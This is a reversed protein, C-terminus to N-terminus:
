GVNIPGKIIKGTEPSVQAFWLGDNGCIARVEKDGRGHNNAHWDLWQLAIHLISFPIPQESEYPDPPRNL